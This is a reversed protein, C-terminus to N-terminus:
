LLDPNTAGHRLKGHMAHHHKTGGGKDEWEGLVAKRASEVRRGVLTARVHESASEDLEFSLTTAAALGLGLIEPVMLLLGITVRSALTQEQNPVFGGLQLAFGTGISVVGAAMKSVFAWFAFFIGAQSAGSTAADADVVDGMLSYGLASTAGGCAGVFGAFLAGFPLRVQHLLCDYTM